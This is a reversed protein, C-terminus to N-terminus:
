RVGRGLLRCYEQEGYRFLLHEAVKALAEVLVLMWLFRKIGKLCSAGFFTSNRRGEAAPFVPITHLLVHESYNTGLLIQDVNRTYRYHFLSSLINHGTNSERITQTLMGSYKQWRQWFFRHGPDVLSARANVDIVCSAQSEFHEVLLYQILSTDPMDPGGYSQSLCSLSTIRGDSNNWMPASNIVPM